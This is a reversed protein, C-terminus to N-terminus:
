IRTSWGVENNESWVHKAGMQREHVKTHLVHILIDHLNSVVVQLL